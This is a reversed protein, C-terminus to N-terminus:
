TPSRQQMSARGRPLAGLSPTILVHECCVGMINAKHYCFPSLILTARAPSHGWPQSWIEGSPQVLHGWCQLEASSPGPAPSPHCRAARVCPASLKPMNWFVEWAGPSFQLFGPCRCTCFARPFFFFPFPFFFIGFAACCGCLLTQTRLPTPKLPQAAGPSKASLCLVPSCCPAPWRSAVPGDERTTHPFPFLLRLQGPGTQTLTEEQHEEPATCISAPRQPAANNGAPHLPNHPSTIHGPDQHDTRAPPHVTPSPLM